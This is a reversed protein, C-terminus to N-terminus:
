RRLDYIGVLGVGGLAPRGDPLFTLANSSSDAACMTQVIRGTRTSVLAVRPWLDRGDPPLGVLALSGDANLAPSPSSWFDSATARLEWLRAGSELDYLAAYPGEVPKPKPCSTARECIIGDAQLLPTLLLRRGDASLAMGAPSRAAPIPALRPPRGQDLILWPGHGARVVARLRGNPRVVVASPGQFQAYDSGDRRPTVGPMTSFPITQLVRGRVADVFALAPEPNKREPRYLGGRTGFQALALGRGGAWLLSDLEGSPHRLPPLREVRGSRWIRLPRWPGLAWGGRPRMRAQTAGFVARSDASWAFPFPPSGGYGVEVLEPAEVVEPPAGELEPGFQLGLGGRTLFFATGDPSVQAVPRLDREARVFSVKRAVALRAPGAGQPTLLGVGYGRSLCSEAAAPTGGGLALTMGLFLAARIRM